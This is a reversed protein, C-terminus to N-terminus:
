ARAPRAPRPVPYTHPCITGDDMKTRCQWFGQMIEPMPGGHTPCWPTETYLAVRAGTMATITHWPTGQLVRQMATTRADIAIAGYRRLLLPWTDRFVGRHRAFPHLWAVALRWLPTVHTRTDRELYCVGIATYAWGERGPVTWIWLAQDQWRVPTRATFLPLADVEKTWAHALAAAAQLAPEGTSDDLEWLVTRTRQQQPSPLRHARGALSQLRPAEIAWWSEQSFITM